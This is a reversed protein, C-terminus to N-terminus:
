TTAPPARLQKISGSFSNCSVNNLEQSIETKYTFAQYIIEQQPEDSIAFEYSVIPCEKEYKDIFVTGKKEQDHNCEHHEHHHSNKHSKEFGPLHYELVHVFRYQIPLLFILLSIIALYINTKYKFM